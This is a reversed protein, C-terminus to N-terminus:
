SRRVRVHKEILDAILVAPASLLAVVWGATAPPAHGLTHGVQEDVVGTHHARRHSAGGGVPELQLEARVVESM